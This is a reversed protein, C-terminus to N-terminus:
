NRILKLLEYVVGVAFVLALPGVVWSWRGVVLSNSLPFRSARRWMLLILISELGIFVGGAVSVLALFERFGSLYLLIPFFVVVSSAALDSFRFDHFLSKKVDRGIVIYTSWLAILGLVALLEVIWFPLVDRVGTISDPSVSPSLVLIGAVFVLYLVAPLATGLIIPRAALLPSRGNKRFYGLLAPIATRGALSFLVAGYPLLIAQPVVLPLSFIRPFDGAGYLFIALIIGAIGATIVNESAVLRNVNFFIPVSALFWFVFVVTSDAGPFFIKLFSAALVLYIMLSFLIGLISSLAAIWKGVAGFYLGAYGAFRYNEPTRVILDAYLLHVCASVATFLVLYLAGVLIGATAFVYPLAFMGAGIITASLLGAPLLLDRYM